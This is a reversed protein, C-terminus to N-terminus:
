TLLAKNNNNNNLLKLDAALESFTAPLTEVMTDPNHLDQDAALKPDPTLKSHLQAQDEVLLLLKIEEEQKSLNLLM